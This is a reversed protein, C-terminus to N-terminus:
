CSFIPKSAHLSSHRSVQIGSLKFIGDKLQGLLDTGGAIIRARGGCGALLACAEAVTRPNWTDFSRM